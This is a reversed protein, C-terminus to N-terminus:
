GQEAAGLFATALTGSVRSSQEMHQWLQQTDLRLGLGGLLIPPCPTGSQLPYPNLDIMVRAAM